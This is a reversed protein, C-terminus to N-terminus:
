VFESHTLYCDFLSHLLIFDSIEHVLSYENCCCQCLHINLSPFYYVTEPNLAGCCDCVIGKSHLDLSVLM